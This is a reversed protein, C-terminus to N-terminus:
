KFLFRELLYGRPALWAGLCNTLNCIAYGASMASALGILIVGILYEESSHSNEDKFLTWCKKSYCYCVWSFAALSLAAVGYTVSAYVVLEKIMLPVEAKALDIGGQLTSQLWELFQKQIEDTKM